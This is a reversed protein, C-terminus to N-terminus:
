REPSCRRAASFPLLAKPIPASVRSEVPGLDKVLDRAGQALRGVLERLDHRALAALGKYLVMVLDGPRSGTKVVVPLYGAVVDAVEGGGYFGLLEGEDDSFGYAGYGADHRPIVREQEGAPLDGGASAAPFATMSLGESSVGSAVRRM